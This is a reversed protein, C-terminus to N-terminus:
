VKGIITAPCCPCEFGCTFENFLGELALQQAYEIKIKEENSIEKHVFEGLTKHFKEILCRSEVLDRRLKEGVSQDLCDILPGNYKNWLEILEPDKTPKEIFRQILEEEESTLMKRKYVVM